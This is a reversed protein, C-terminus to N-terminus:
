KKDEDHIQQFVEEIDSVKQQTQDSVFEVKPVNRSQLKKNLEKQIRHLENSITALAYQQESVPFISVFVQAYRLDSSTDVRLVSVFVDKKFSLYQLLIEAVSDRVLDNIKEVRRTM